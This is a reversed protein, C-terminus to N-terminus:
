FHRFSIYFLLLNYIIKRISKENSGSKRKKSDLTELISFFRNKENWAKNSRRFRYKRYTKDVFNSLVIGSYDSFRASLRISVLLIVLHWIPLSSIWNSCKLHISFQFHFWLFVFLSVDIRKWKWLEMNRIKKQANM